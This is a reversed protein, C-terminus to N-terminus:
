EEEVIRRLRNFMGTQVGMRNPDSQVAGDLSHHCSCDSVVANKILVPILQKVRQINAAFTAMVLHANVAEHQGTITYIDTPLVIVAYCIGAERMLHAEPSTTMGILHFGRNIFDDYEADTSYQPGEITVYVGGDHHEIKAERLAALMEQRVNECFPKSMSIHVVLGTGNFFTRVRHKTNDILQHPVTLVGPQTEETLSGCASIAYVKKVGLRVLAMTNARYPVDTPNIEHGLGHRCLFAVTKGEIEGITIPGAPYGFETNLFVPEIKRVIKLDDLEALGSGGIIAIKAKPLDSM